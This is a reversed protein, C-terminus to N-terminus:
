LGSRTQRLAEGVAMAAAMAVNLSRLSPKIPIKLRIDSAAVVEDTVGVTEGDELMAMIVLICDAGWSRAEAVQYTELMFDKRLVPLRVMARAETLFTLAAEATRGSDRLAALRSFPPWAAQAREELAVRAFGDYGEALLHTVLVSWPAPVKPPLAHVSSGAM